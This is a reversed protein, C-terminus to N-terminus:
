MGTKWLLWPIEVGNVRMAGSVSASDFIYHFLGNQHNVALGSMLDVDFGNVLYKHYHRTAYIRTKAPPKEEGINNLITTAQATGILDTLIDIDNPKRTLRCHNLLISGGVAWVFKKANLREGIFSLTNLV